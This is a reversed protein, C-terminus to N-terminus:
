TKRGRALRAAMTGLAAVALVLVAWLVTRKDLPSGLAIRGDGGLVSRSGLAAASILAGSPIVSLDTAAARIETSGYALLFPPKGHALFEIESPSFSGQLRLAVAASSEGSLHVRWYRDHDLPVDIPGNTQQGDATTVRYVGARTVTRWPTKENARSKFDAM